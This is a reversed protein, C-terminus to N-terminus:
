KLYGVFSAAGLPVRAFLENPDACLTVAIALTYEKPPM